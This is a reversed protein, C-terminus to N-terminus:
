PICEQEKTKSEPTYMKMLCLRREKADRLLQNQASTKEEYLESSAQESGQSHNNCIYAGRHGVDLEVNSKGEQIRYEGLTIENNSQSSPKKEEIKSKCILLDGKNCAGQLYENPTEHM